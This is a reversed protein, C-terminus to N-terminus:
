NRIAINGLTSESSTADSHAHMLKMTPFTQNCSQRSRLSAPEGGAEAGVVWDISSLSLSSNAHVISRRNGDASAVVNPHIAVTLVFHQDIPLHHAIKPLVLAFGVSNRRTLM